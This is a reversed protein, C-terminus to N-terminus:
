YAPRSLHSIDRGCRSEVGPGNLEYRMVTGVVNDRGVYMTYTTLSDTINDEGELSTIFSLGDGSSCKM